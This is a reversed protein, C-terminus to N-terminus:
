CPVPSEIKEDDPTKQANKNRQSRQMKELSGRHVWKIAVPANTEGTKLLANSVNTEM